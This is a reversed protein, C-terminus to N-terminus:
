KEVIPIDFNVDLDYRKASYKAHLTTLDDAVALHTATYGFVMAVMDVTARLSPDLKFDPIPSGVHVRDFPPMDPLPTAQGVLLDVLTSLQSPSSKPFLDEFRFLGRFAKSKSHEM